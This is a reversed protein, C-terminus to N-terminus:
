LPNYWSDAAPGLYGIKNVISFSNEKTQSGWASERQESSIHGDAWGVNAKNAHRFHVYPYSSHPYIIFYPELVTTHTMGGGDAADAFSVTKSPTKMLCAKMSTGYKNGGRYYTSGIGNVNYGYGGGNNDAIHRAYIAAFSPCIMLETSANTYPALFGNKNLTENSADNADVGRHWMKYQDPRSANRGSYESYPAFYGDYDTSYTVNATSIQKINGVCSIAKAKERAKGLAPLLMGALIAIISIVVLLEILTFNRKLPRIVAVGYDSQDQKQALM